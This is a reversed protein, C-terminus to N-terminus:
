TPDEFNLDNSDSLLQSPKTEEQDPYGEPILLNAINALIAFFLIGSVKKKRFFQM